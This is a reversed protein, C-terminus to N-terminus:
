AARRVPAPRRNFEARIVQGYGPRAVARIAYRVERMESCAALRPRIALAAEGYRRVSHAITGLALVAATAFLATLLTAIM